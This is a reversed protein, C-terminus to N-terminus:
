EAECWFQLEASSTPHYNYNLGTFGHGGVFQNIPGGDRNLQYLHSQFRTTDDADTVWVNLARENDMQGSSYAAHFIMDAFAVSQEDDADASFTLAEEREIPQSVGARYATHCTIATPLPPQTTPPQSACAAL